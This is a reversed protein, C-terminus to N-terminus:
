KPLTVRLTTAGPERQAPPIVEGTDPDVVTAETEASARMLKERAKLAESLRRWEPDHDYRWRTAANPTEISAGFLSQGRYKDAENLAAPKLNDALRDAVERLFYAALYMELPNSQGEVLSLAAIGDALQQARTKSLDNTVIVRPLLEM